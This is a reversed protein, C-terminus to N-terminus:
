RSKGAAEAAIFEQRSAPVRLCVHFERFDDEPDCADPAQGDDRREIEQKVEDALLIRGGDRMGSEEVPEHTHGQSPLDREAVDGRVRHAEARQHNRGHKFFRGVSDGHYSQDQLAAHMRRIQDEGACVGQEAHKKHDGVEFSRRPLKPRM